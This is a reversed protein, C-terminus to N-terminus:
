VTTTNFLKYDKYKCWIMLQDDLFDLDAKDPLNNTHILKRFSSSIENIRIDAYDSDLIGTIANHLSKDYLLDINYEHHNVLHTGLRLAIEARWLDKEDFFGKYQRIDKLDAVVAELSNLLAKSVLKSENEILNSYSYHQSVKKGKFIQWDRIRGESINQVHGRATIFTSENRTFENRIEKQISLIDSLYPMYVVCNMERTLGNYANFDSVKAIVLSDM